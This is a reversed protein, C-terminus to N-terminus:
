YKNAKRGHEFAVRDVFGNKWCLNRCDMYQGIIFLGIYAVQALRNKASQVAVCYSRSNAGDTHEDTQRHM